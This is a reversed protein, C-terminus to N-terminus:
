ASGAFLRVARRIFELDKRVKYNHEKLMDRFAGRTGYLGLVIFPVSLKGPKIGRKALMKILIRSISGYTKSEAYEKEAVMILDLLEALSSFAQINLMNDALLNINKETYEAKFLKYYNTVFAALNRALQEQALFITKEDRAELVAMLMRHLDSDRSELEKILPAVAGKPMVAKLKMILINYYASPNKRAIAKHTNSGGLWLLWQQWACFKAEPDAYKGLFRGVFRQVPQKGSKVKAVIDAFTEKEDGGIATGVAPLYFTTEVGQENVFTYERIEQLTTVVCVQREFYDRGMNVADVAQLNAKETGPGFSKLLSYVQSKDLTVIDGTKVGPKDMEKLIAPLGAEVELKQEKIHALLTKAMGPVAAVSVSKLEEGDPDFEQLFDLGHRQVTAATLAHDAMKRYADDAEVMDLALMAALTNKQRTVWSVLARGSRYQFLHSQKRQTNGRDKRAQLKVAEPSFSAELAQRDVLPVGTQQEILRLLVDWGITLNEGALQRDTKGFPRLSERQTEVRKKLIRDKLSGFGWALLFFRLKRAISRTELAASLWIRIFANGMVPLLGKNTNLAMEWAWGPMELSYKTNTNFFERDFAADTKRNKEAEEDVRIRVRLWPATGYKVNEKIKFYKGFLRNRYDECTQEIVPEFPSENAQPKSINQQYDESHEALGVPIDLYQNVALHAGIFVLIGIVFGLVPSFAQLSIYASASIGAAIVANPLPTPTDTRLVPSLIGDLPPASDLIWNFAKDLHNWSIATYLVQYVPELLHKAIWSQVPTYKEGLIKAFIQQDFRNHIFPALLGFLALPLFWLSFAPLTLFVYPVTHLFQAYFSKFFPTKDLSLKGLTGSARFQAILKLPQHLFLFFLYLGIFAPFALPTVWLGLVATILGLSFIIRKEWKLGAKGLSVWRVVHDPYRAMAYYFALSSPDNATPPKEVLLQEFLQQLGEFGTKNSAPQSKKDYYFDGDASFHYKDEGKRGPKIVTKSKAGLPVTFILSLEFEDPLRDKYKMQRYAANLNVGLNGYINILKFKGKVSLIEPFLLSKPDQIFVGLSGGLPHAFTLYYKYLDPEFIATGKLNFGDNDYLRLSIKHLWKAIAEKETELLEYTTEGWFRLKYGYPLLHNSEVKAKTKWIDPFLLIESDQRFVGISVNSFSGLSHAFTLYHKHLDPKFIGAYKLYSGTKGYRLWIKHLRKAITDKKTELIEYTIGGGLQLRYGSPLLNSKFKAETRWIDPFLSSKSNQRFVDLSGAGFRWLPYAISIDYKTWDPSFTAAGKFNFGTKDYLSLLNLWIKSNKTYLWLDSADQVKQPGLAYTMGGGFQLNDGYNFAIGPVFEPQDKFYYDGGVNRLHFNNTIMGVNLSVPGESVIKGGLKFNNFAVQISYPTPKKEFKQSKEPERLNLPEHFFGLDWNFLFSDTKINSNVNIRSKMLSGESDSDIVGYVPGVSNEINLKNMNWPYLNNTGGAKPQGIGVFFLILLAMPVVRVLSVIFKHKPSVFTKIRVLQSFLFKEFFATFGGKFVWTARQELSNFLTRAMEDFKFKTTLVKKFELYQNVAQHFFIFVLLGLVPSFAQLSIYALASLGAAIVANWLPTPTKTRLVLSLLRNLGPPARDLIWNFVKDLHLIPFLILAIEFSSQMQGTITDIPFWDALIPMGLMSLGWLGSMVVGGLFLVWGTEILVRYKIYKQEALDPFLAFTWDKLLTSRGGRTIKKNNSEIEQIAALYAQENGEALLRERAWEEAKEKNVLANYIQKVLPSADKQIPIATRKQKEFEPHQRCYDQYDSYTYEKYLRTTGRWVIVLEQKNKNDRFLEYIKESILSGTLWAGSLEKCGAPLRTDNFFTGKLSEDAINKPSALAHINHVRTLCVECTQEKDNPYKLIIIELGNDKLYQKFKEVQEDYTLKKAIAAPPQAVPKKKQKEFEPHRKCYDQFISYKITKNKIYVILSQRNLNDRFLEYVQKESVSSNELDLETLSTSGALTSIDEVSTNALYLVTLNPLGALASIDDVSTENLYLETLNRLDALASIDSVSTKNLRLKITEEVDDYERNAEGLNNERLFQEVIKKQKKFTLKKAAVTPPQAAPATSPHKIAGYLFVGEALEQLQPLTFVAYNEPRKSRSQLDESIKNEDISASATSCVEKLGTLTHINEVYTTESTYVTFRCDNEILFHLLEENIINWPMNPSARLIIEKSFREPMGGTRWLAQTIDPNAALRRDDLMVGEPGYIRDFGFILRFLNYVSNELLSRFRKSLEKMQPNRPVTEVAPLAHQEAKPKPLELEIPNSQRSESHAIAVPKYRCSISKAGIERGFIGTLGRRITGDLGSSSELLSSKELREIAADISKRMAMVRKNIKKNNIHKVKLVISHPYVPNELQAKMEELRSIDAYPLDAQMIDLEAKVEAITANLAEKKQKELAERAAVARAAKQEPTLLAKQEAEEPVGPLLEQASMREAAEEASQRQDALSMEDRSDRDPKRLADIAAYDARMAELLKLSRFQQFQVAEEDLSNPVCEYIQKATQLHKGALAAVNLPVLGELVASLESVDEESILGKAFCSLLYEFMDQPTSKGLHEIDLSRVSEAFVQEWVDAADLTSHPYFKKVAHEMRMDELSMYLHDFSQNSLPAPTLGPTHRTFLAHGAEHDMTELNNAVTNKTRLSVLLKDKVFQKSGSKKTVADWALSVPYNCMFSGILRLVENNDVFSKEQFTKVLYKRKPLEKGSTEAIKKLYFSGYITQIVDEPKPRKASRICAFAANLIDRTTPHFNTNPIQERIWCHASVLYKIDDESPMKEGANLFRQMHGRAISKLEAQPYDTLRNFITRNLLASSFKERSGFEENNITAFLGFGPHANGTLVDNLQGEIFASPLLNMESIIVKSGDTKAREITAVIDDIRFSANLHYYKSTGPTHDPAAKADVMGNAKLIQVLVADKGRGSAGMNIMGTKGQLISKGDIRTQSIKLFEEVQDVMQAVAPVLTIGAQRFVEGYRTQIGVIRKKQIDTVWVGTKKYFQHKLAEQENPSFAGSYINWAVMVVDDMNWKLPLLHNVRTAFEQLDRLSRVIAPNARACLQHLQLMMEVLDQKNGYVYESLKDRLFSEEFEPFNKIIFHKEILDIHNRGVVSEQNGTFIIRDGPVFYRRGGNVWVYRDESKENFFAELFNWFEPKALNAEDVVFLRPDRNSNEPVWRAIPGEELELKGDQYAERAIVKDEGTEIGVTIPGIVNKLSLGLHKAIREAIYSKGVGPSGRFFVARFDRLIRVISEELQISNEMGTRVSSDIMPGSAIEEAMGFRAAYMEKKEGSSNFILAKQITKEVDNFNPQGYNTGIGSKILLDLSLTDALQWVAAQWQKPPSMRNLIANLKLGHISDPTRDDEEMDFILRTMVRIYAVVEPASSYSPLIVEEIAKLWNQNRKYHHALMKLRDFSLNPKEPYLGPIPPAHITNMLGRLKQLKQFDGPEIDLMEQAAEDTYSMSVRTRVDYPNARASNATIILQGTTINFREGNVMLYPNPGLATALGAMLSTNSDVGEILVTENRQLAKVVESIRVEYKGPSPSHLTSTLQAISTQPSNPKYLIKGEVRGAVMAKLFGTDDGELYIVPAKAAQEWTSYTDHSFIKGAEKTKFKAYVAPVDDPNSVELEINAASHMIEHWVWDAPRGQIRLRLNQKELLGPLRELKDGTVKIRSFLIDKNEENIVWTEADKLKGEGLAVISKNDVGEQYNKAKRYIKFDEPIAITKGNFEITRRLLLQRIFYVAAENKWTDGELVLPLGKEIRGEQENYRGTKVISRVLKEKFLPSGFTDVAVAEIGSPAEKINDIIDKHKIKVRDTVKFRSRFTSDSKMYQKESIAGIIRLNEGNGPVKYKEFYPEDNFLSNFQEILHSASGTFDLLLTATKESQLLEPLAGPSVHPKGDTDLHVSTMLADLEEQNHITLRIYKQGSQRANFALADDLADVDETVFLWKSYPHKTAARINAQSLIETDKGAVKERLIGGVLNMPVGFFQYYYHGATNVLTGVILASRLSLSIASGLSGVEGLYGPFAAGFYLASIAMAFVGIFTTIDAMVTWHNINRMQVIAAKSYVEDGKHANVFIQNLKRTAETYGLLNFVFVLISIPRMVLIEYLPAMYDTMNFFMKSWAKPSKRVAQRVQEVKKVSRFVTIIWRSYKQLSVSNLQNLWIEPVLGKRMVLSVNDSEKGNISLNYAYVGNPLGEGEIELLQIGSFQEMYAALSKQQDAKLIIKIEGHKMLERFTKVSLVVQQTLSPGKEWGNMIAMITQNQALLKELPTKRDQLLEFYPNVVDQQTVRPKISVYTIDRRKLEALVKDTHFGGNIMVALKEDLRNMKRVLNDVFHISREDALRYFEEVKNLYEDLIYMEPDLIIEEIPRAHSGAGVQNIFNAFEKMRYKERQARFEQLEEQSVSINLLREIIDLRHYFADLEQQTKDTYLQQRIAADLQDLEQFLQDSDVGVSFFNQKLSFFRALNPYVSLDVQLRCATRHLYASYSLIDMDGERYAARKGDFKLLRSNYIDTKLEDLIDRLDYCYGQSEANLFSRVAKQGAAYLEPTEIGELQVAGGSIAAYHEAGTIKGQKVFYDSVEERVKRVPFASIPSTDVTNFAGEEGVLKLGHKKVLHQIINTINKQVEYNCHLDQICVVTKGKGQFGRNIAGIKEPITLAKGLHAIRLFHPQSIAYSGADFAWTVYPLVFSVAILIIGAKIWTRFKPHHFASVLTIKSM